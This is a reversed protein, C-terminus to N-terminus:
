AASRGVYRVALVTIDDHQPAGSSFEQVSSIVESVLKELSGDSNRAALEQLREYSFENESMDPAETVGDTYLLLADGSSLKLKGTPYEADPLIGLVPGGDGDPLQAKGNSIQYPMSHGAVSFTVEGSTLDLVGYFLTVFMGPVNEQCLARNVRKLCEGPIAEILTTARMLTRTASMFLGAPVGKGAVDGILFGLKGASIEFFDYFDGGVMRAPVMQAHIEVPLRSPNAHSSQPLMAHQIQSALDLECEMALLKKQTRAAEKMKGVELLTKEITFEVDNLDVPKTLFDFAGRNMAARINKLDSYASIVVTKAPRDMEQVRGLLTLGDMEPMNLDSLIIEIGPDQKLRELAERGNTAFHFHFATSAIQKRFKRKILLELDKEDDVVLIQASM